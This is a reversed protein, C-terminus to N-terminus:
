NLTDVLKALDEECKEAAKICLETVLRFDDGNGLDELDNSIRDFLDSYPKQMADVVPDPLGANDAIAQARKIKMTLATMCILLAAKFPDTEKLNAAQQLYSARYNKAMERVSNLTEKDIM